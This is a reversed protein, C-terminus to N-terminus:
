SHNLLGFFRFLIMLSAAQECFFYKFLLREVSFGASRVHVPVDRSFASFNLAMPIILTFLDKEPKELM